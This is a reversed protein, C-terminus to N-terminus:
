GNDFTFIDRDWSILTSDFTATEEKILVGDTYFIESEFEDTGNTFWIEWFGEILFNDLITNGLCYYRYESELTQKLVHNWALGIEIYGCRNAVIDAYTKCLNLTNSEHRYVYLTTINIDNSVFDSVFPPLYQNPYLNDEWNINQFNGLQQFKKLHGASYIKLFGSM